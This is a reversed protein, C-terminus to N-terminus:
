LEVEDRIRLVGDALKRPWCCDGCRDCVAFCLALEYWHRGCKRCLYEYEFEWDFRKKM